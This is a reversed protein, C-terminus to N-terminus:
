NKKQKHTNLTVGWNLHSQVCILIWNIKMSVVWSLHSQVIDFNKFITDVCVNSIVTNLENDLFKSFMNLCDSVFCLNKQHQWILRNHFQSFFFNQWWWSIAVFECRNIKLNHIVMRCIVIISIQWYDVYLFIYPTKCKGEFIEFDGWQEFQGGM